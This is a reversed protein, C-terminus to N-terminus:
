RTVSWVPQPQPLLQRPVLLRTATDRQCLDIAADCVLRDASCLVVDHRGVCWEGRINDSDVLLVCVCVPVSINCACPCCQIDIVNGAFLNGGFM